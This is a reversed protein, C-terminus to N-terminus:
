PKGVLKVADIEDWGKLIRQDLHIKVVSIKEKIDSVNVSLIRPCTQKVGPTASYVTAYDGSALKVQVTDISGPANVEHIDIRTPVVPTTFTVELWDVGNNAQSAWANRQDSCVAPMKPVGVAKKTSWDTPSFQSSATASSALQGINGNSDPVALRALVESDSVFKGFVYVVRPDKSPVSRSRGSITSLALARAKKSRSAPSGSDQLAKIQADLATSDVKLVLYQGNIAVRYNPGGSTFVLNDGAVRGPRTSNEWGMWNWNVTGDPRVVITDTEEAAETGDVNAPGGVWKGALDAPTVVQAHVPTSLLLAFVVSLAGFFRM